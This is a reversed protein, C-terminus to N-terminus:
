AGPHASSAPWEEPRTCLGASVPNQHVYDVFRALAAESRILHDFYKREWFPGSLSLLRNIRHASYSKWTHLISALSHPPAPAVIAHAHNPMVVWAALHYRDGDFHGLCGTVIEAVEPRALVCAGRTLPPESREAVTEPSADDPVSDPSRLVADWARFTVFYVGGDKELHPLVGRFRMPAFPLARPDNFRFSDDM